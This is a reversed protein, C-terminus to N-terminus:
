VLDLLEMCKPCQTIEKICSTHFVGSCSVCTSVSVFSHGFGKECVQCKRQQSLLTSVVEKTLLEFVPIDTKVSIM